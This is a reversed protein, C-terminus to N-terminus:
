EGGMAARERRADRKTPRGAGRPRLMPPLFNPERHKAYEAPPTLDEAFQGVFKAGVRSPPSALFRVTRTIEGIRAVVLEGPKLERAAKCALGTVNVHGAKIAEASLARTKFLRVAWLWQDLRMGRFQRVESVTVIELM